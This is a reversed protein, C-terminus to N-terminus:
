QSMSGSVWNNDWILHAPFDDIFSWGSSTDYLTWGATLIAKGKWQWRINKLPVFATSGPALYLSYLRFSDSSYVYDAGALSISPSDGETIEAGNSPYVNTINTFVPEYGFTTDLVEIGNLSFFRQHTGLSKLRYPTILQTYNWGGGSGFDPNTTVKGIWTIGRITGNYQGGTLQMRGSGAVGDLQVTGIVAGLENLPKEVTCKAEAMASFTGGGPKALVVVCTVTTPDPRKWYFQASSETMTGLPM